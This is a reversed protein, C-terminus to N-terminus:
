KLHGVFRPPVVILSICPNGEVTSTAEEDPLFM